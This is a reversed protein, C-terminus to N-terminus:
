AAASKPAGAGALYAAALKKIRDEDVQMEVVAAGSPDRVGQIQGEKVGLVDLIVPDSGSEAVLYYAVVPEAQGDRAVRGICQEHVGPSWDLEGFVVTRCVGQLGDLGAGSRLSIVLVKIRGDLFMARVMDKQAPSESGTYFGVGVDELEKRWLDYVARHWGFLVVREGGAVLLRVFAAVSLAKGIGTAQRLKHDLDGGAQMRDFSARGTDLIIRALEAAANRVGDLAKPDADVVQVSASVAPLERGVDRRTRRLMFTGDRLYAGFARTDRIRAKDAPGETCWERRFEEWAGMGDPRLCQLVSWFEGGYNYIPTATLGLRLDAGRAIREAARWKDSDTRRLEQAEDWVVSRVLGALADVWGALKSYTCVLVDPMRPRVLDLQEPVVGRGPWPVGVGRAVDYPTGKALVHSVLGPAFKKFERVWQTQLHPYTVVLAPRAAPEVLVAIGTATKGLGVDDALLLGRAALTLAAAQAQYPRLPVALPFVRGDVEGALAARCREQRELEAAVRAELAGAPTVTHPWRALVMSLDLAVEANDELTIAGTSGQRARPFIRKLRIAVHAETVIRWRGGHLTVSGYVNM